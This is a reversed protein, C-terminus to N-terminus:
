ILPSFLCRQLSHMHPQNQSKHECEHDSREATKGPNRGRRRVSKDARQEHYRHAYTVDRCLSCERPWNM